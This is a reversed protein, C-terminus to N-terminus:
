AENDTRYNSLPQRPNSFSNIDGLTESDFLRSRKRLDSQQSVCFDCLRKIEPEAWAFRRERSIHYKEYGRTKGAPRGRPYAYEYIELSVGKGWDKM